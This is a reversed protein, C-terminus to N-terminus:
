GHGSLIRAAGSVSDRFAEDFSVGRREWSRTGSPTEIRWAGVWGFASPTWTLTGRLAIAGPIPPLPAAEISGAQKVAAETVFAVRM